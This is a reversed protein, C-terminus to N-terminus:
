KCGNVVINWSGQDFPDFPDPEKVRACIIKGSPYRFVIYIEGTSHENYSEITTQTVTKNTDFLDDRYNPISSRSEILSELYGPTQIIERVMEIGKLWMDDGPKLKSTIVKRTDIQTSSTSPNVPKVSTSLNTINKLAQLKVIFRSGPSNLDPSIKNFYAIFSIFIIHIAFSFVLFVKIHHYKYTSYVSKNMTDIVVYFENFLEIGHQHRNPSILKTINIINGLIIVRSKLLNSYGFVSIIIM